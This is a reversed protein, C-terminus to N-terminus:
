SCAYAAWASSSRRSSARRVTAATCDPPCTGIGPRTRKPIRTPLCLGVLGTRNRLPGATVCPKGDPTMAPEIAAGTWNLKEYVEQQWGDATLSQHFYGQPYM